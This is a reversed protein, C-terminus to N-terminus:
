FEPRGRPYGSAPTVLFRRDVLRGVHACRSESDAAAAARAASPRDLIINVARDGLRNSFSGLHVATVEERRATPGRVPTRGLWARCASISRLSIWAGSGPMSAAWTCGALRSRRSPGM